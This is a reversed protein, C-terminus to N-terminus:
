KSNKSYVQKREEQGKGIGSGRSLAREGSLVGQSQGRSVRDKGLWHAQVRCAEPCICKGLCIPQGQGESAEAERTNRGIRPNMEGPGMIPYGQTM